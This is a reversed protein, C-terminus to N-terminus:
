LDVSNRDVQVYLTVRVKVEKTDCLSDAVIVFTQDSSVQNIHMDMRATSNANYKAM